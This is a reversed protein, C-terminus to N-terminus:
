AAKAVTLAVALATNKMGIGQGFWASELRKEDDAGRHHDVYETVANYAAWMTGRVKPLQNGKGTEFLEIITASGKPMAKDEVDKGFTAKIYNDLGEGSVPVKALLKYQALAAKFSSHAGAVVQQMEGM